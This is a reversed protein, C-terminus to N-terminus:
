KYNYMVVDKIERNLRNIYPHDVEKLYSIILGTSVAYNPGYKNLINGRGCVVGYNALYNSLISPVEFDLISGGVLVIYPIDRVDDTPSIKKLGREVNKVIVRQKLQRRLRSVEDISCNPELPIKEDDKLVVVKSFLNPEFPEKFFEVNGKEYRLSFFYEIKGLPYNKIDEALEIDSLGLESAILKTLLNGAGAYNQYKIKNNNIYIIDTSGGGVDVVAVPTSVGPTTLAGLGAMLAENGQILTKISFKKEIEKAIKQITLRDTEVLAAIATAKEKRYEGALAGSIKKPILTDVAFIDKIKINRYNNNTARGMELKVRTLMSGVNTGQEGYVDNIPWAKEIVEMIKSAGKNIDISFVKGMKDIINIVGVPIVRQKISSSPTKIVVASRNGILARAIPIIKKTEEPTLNFISAIGYPDSLKEITKGLEVVEVAAYQGLPVKEIEKVEDVIPINKKIRNAILRGDDNQVILGNVNINKEFLNNIIEAADEFNVDSPVVLIIGDTKNLQNINVEKINHIVGTGLGVGGPTEPDHGILISDTIVTETITEMAFDGIVPAAENLLILNIDTIQLSVQFLSKRIVKEIGKLNELTGKLGTTPVSCSCLFNVSKETIEALVLKTNINGLDIGAIYKIM